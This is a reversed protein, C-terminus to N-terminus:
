IGDNSEASGTDWIHSTNCDAHRDTQRDARMDWFGCTWVERLKRHMNLTTTAQMTEKSSLATGSVTARLVSFVYRPVTHKRNQPRRWTKVYHLRDVLILILTIKRGVEGPPPVQPSIACAPKHRDLYMKQTKIIKKRQAHALPASNRSGTRFGINRKEWRRRNWTFHYFNPLNPLNKGVYKFYKFDKVMIRRNVKYSLNFHIKIILCM